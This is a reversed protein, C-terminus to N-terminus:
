NDTSAFPWPLFSDSPFFGHGVFFRLVGFRIITGGVLYAYPKSQANANTDSYSGDQPIGPGAQAEPNCNASANARQLGLLCFLM